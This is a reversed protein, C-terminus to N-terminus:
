ENDLELIQYNPKEALDSCHFLAIAYPFSPRTNLFYELIDDTDDNSIVTFITTYTFASSKSEGKLKQMNDEYQMQMANVKILDNKTLQMVKYMKNDALFVLNSNDAPIHTFKLNTENDMFDLCVYMAEITGKEIKSNTSTKKNGSVIYKENLAFSIYHHDALNRLVKDAKNPSCKCYEKLIHMAQWTSLCGVKGIINFIYTEEKSLYSNYYAM